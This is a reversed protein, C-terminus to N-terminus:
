AKWEPDGLRILKVGEPVEEIVRWPDIVIDGERILEKFWPFRSVMMNAAIITRPGFQDGPMEFVPSTFREPEWNADPDILKVLLGRPKLIHGLLLSPSGDTLRTGAKFSVGAIWVPRGIEDALKAIWRTQRDRMAMVSGFPDASLELQDALWSLALNDRPHCPGGDGMGGRLYKGSLLRDTAHLLVDTVVDVNADGLKHCMEMVANAFTIKQSIFTNYAMKIIEAETFTTVFIPPIAQDQQGYFAEYFRRLRNADGPREAGILVFEPHFFDQIVQGMAILFPNYCIQVRLSPGVAGPLVDGLREAMVEHLIAQIKDRMTGPLVTSIIAITKDPGYAPVRRLIQRLCGELISTDFPQKDSPDFPHTGDHRSGHPTPVAVFIIDSEAVVYSLNCGLVLRGSAETDQVGGLAAPLGPEDPLGRGAVYNDVKEDNSDYGLVRYGQQAIAVAVPLGLKGLGVFGITAGNAKAPKANKEDVMFSLETDLEHTDDYAGGFSGYPENM